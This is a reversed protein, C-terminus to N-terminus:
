EQVLIHMYTCITWSWDFGSCLQHLDIINAKEKNPQRTLPCDISSNDTTDDSKLHSVRPRLGWESIAMSIIEKNPTDVEKVQRFPKSHHSYETGIARNIDSNVKRGQKVHDITATAIGDPNKYVKNSNMSLSFAQNAGADQHSAHKTSAGHHLAAFGVGLDVKINKTFSKYSDYLAQYDIFHLLEM